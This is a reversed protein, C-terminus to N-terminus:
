KGGEGQGQENLSKEFQEEFSEIKKQKEKEKKKIEELEEEAKKAREEYRQKHVTFPSESRFENWKQEFQVSEKEMEINM